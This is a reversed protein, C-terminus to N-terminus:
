STMRETFTRLDHLEFSSLTGLAPPFLKSEAYIQRCARLLGLRDKNHTSLPSTGTAALDYVEGRFVFEYIRNRLEGPLKLLPSSAAHSGYSGAACPRSAFIRTDDRKHVSNKYDLHLRM